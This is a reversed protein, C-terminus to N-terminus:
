FGHHHQRVERAVDEASAFRHRDSVGSLLDGLPITLDSGHIPVLWRGARARLRGATTPFELDELMIRVAESGAWDSPAMEAYHPAHVDRGVDDAKQDHM